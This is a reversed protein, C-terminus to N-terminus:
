PPSSFFKSLAVLLVVWLIFSAGVFLYVARWTKLLPLGPAERDHRPTLAPAADEAPIAEEEPKM